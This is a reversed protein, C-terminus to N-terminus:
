KVKRRRGESCRHSPQTGRKPKAKSKEKRWREEKGRDILASEVEKPKEEAIVVSGGSENDRREM